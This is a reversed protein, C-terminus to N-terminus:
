EEEFEDDDDEEDFDDDEDEDVEFRIARVHFIDANKELFKEWMEELKEASEPDLLRGSHGGTWDFDPIAAQLEATTLIPCYDPNIVVDRDLDVYHINDRGQDSWDEGYFPMSDFTGSMCIGTNGDGCRVMFFRDGDKAQRYDWVSWNLPEWRNELLFQYDSMKCSSIAPNWFLIFTRQKEEKEIKIKIEM